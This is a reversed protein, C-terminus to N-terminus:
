IVASIKVFTKYFHEKLPGRGLMNIKDMGSFKIPQRPLQLALNAFFSKFIMEESTMLPNFSFHESSNMVNAEEFSTNKNRNSM